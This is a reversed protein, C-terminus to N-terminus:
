PPPSQKLMRRIGDRVRNLFEGPANLILWQTAAHPDLPFWEEAVEGMVEFKSAPNEFRLTAVWEAAAAPELSSWGSAVRRALDRRPSEDPLGAIQELIPPRAAANLAAEAIGFVAHAQDAHPLRQFQEFAGDPDHTTWQAFITKPMWMWSADAIPPGTESAQQYWEWAAAPDHRSWAAAAYELSLGLANGTLHDMAHDLSARPDTEAWLKLVLPAMSSFVLPEGRYAQLERLAEAADEPRLADMLVFGRDWADPDADRARFHQAAEELVEAVSPPPPEGATAAANSSADRERNQPTKLASAREGASGSSATLANQWRVAARHSKAAARGTFYGGTGATLVALALISAVVPHVKCASVLNSISATGAVFTESAVLALTHRAVRHALQQPADRLLNADLTTLLAPVPTATGALELNRRLRAVARAVRKQAAEESIGLARGIQRASMREFFRLAIADRDASNLQAIAKDIHPGIRTWPNEADHEQVGQLHTDTMAAVERARRRTEGRILM